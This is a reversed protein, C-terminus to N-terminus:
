TDNVTQFVPRIQLPQMIEKKLGSQFDTSSTEEGKLEIFSSSPSAALEGGNLARSNVSSNRGSQRGQGPLRRKKKHWLPCHKRPCSGKQSYEACELLHKKTCKEGKACFGQVFDKCISASNNVKVHSYPCDVQTCIGKLFFRCVPMRDKSVKHSFPCVGSAKNCMGRLFRTCIAVKDPDHKYPCSTGKYCRGFRNFFMCYEQKRAKRLKATRSLFISRQLVQQAVIKTNTVKRSSIPTVEKKVKQESMGPLRKLSKGHRSYRVGNINVVNMVKKSARGGSNASPQKRQVTKMWLPTRKMPWYIGKAMVKPNHWMQDLKRCSRHRGLFPNSRFLMPSHEVMHQLRRTVFSPKEYRDWLHQRGVSWQMKHPVYQQGHFNNRINFASRRDHCYQKSSKMRHFKSRVPTQFRSRTPTSPPYQKATRRLSKLSNRRSRMKGGEIKTDSPPRGQEKGTGKIRKPTSGQYSKRVRYRTRTKVLSRNGPKLSKSKGHPNIKVFRNVSRSVVSPTKRRLLKTKKARVHNTLSSRSLSQSHPTWVYKSKKGGGGKRKNELHKSNIKASLMAIDSKLKWVEDSETSDLNPNQPPLSRLTDKTKDASYNGPAQQAIPLAHCASGDGHYNPAVKGTRVHAVKSLSQPLKLANQKGTVPIKGKVHERLIKSNQGARSDRKSFDREKLKTLYASLAQVRAIECNKDQIQEKSSSLNGGAKELNKLSEEHATRVSDLKASGTEPHLVAANSYPPNCRATAPCFRRENVSADAATETDVRRGGQANGSQNCNLSLNSKQSNECSVSNACKAQWSNDAKAKASKVQLSAGEIPLLEERMGLSLSTGGFNDNSSLAVSKPKLSNSKVSNVKEVQKTLWEIKKRNEIVAQKTAQLKAELNSRSTVVKACRHRGELDSNLPVQVGSFKPSVNHRTKQNSVTSYINRMKGRGSPPSETTKPREESVRKLQYKMPHHTKKGVWKSSGEKDNTVYKLNSQSTLHAPRSLSAVHSPARRSASSGVGSSPLHHQTKKAKHDKILASLLLFDTNLKRYEENRAAEGSNTVRGDM